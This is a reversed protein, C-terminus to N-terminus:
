ISSSTSGAFSKNALKEIYPRSDHVFASYGNEVRRNSIVKQPDYAWKDGLLLHMGDLMNNVEDVAQRTNVIFPGVSMPLKFMHGKKMPVFHIKDVNLSKRIFELAFLRM